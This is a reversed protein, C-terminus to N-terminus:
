LAKREESIHRLTSQYNYVSTESCGIPGMKLPCAAWSSPISLNDRFTPKLSFIHAACFGLIDFIDNAVHRLGSILSVTLVSGTSLATNVNLYKIIIKTESHSVQNM